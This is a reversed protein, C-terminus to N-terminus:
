CGCWSDATARGHSSRDAFSLYVCFVLYFFLVLPKLGINGKWQREDKLRGKVVEEVSEAERGYTKYYDGLVARTGWWAVNEFAAPLSCTECDYLVSRGSAEGNGPETEAMALALVGHCVAAAACRSPKRTLPFYHALLSRLIPCDLMQRISHDHGGPLFVLSYPALSFTPATWSLPQQFEPTHTM